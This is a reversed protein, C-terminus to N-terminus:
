PALKREEQRLTRARELGGTVLIPQSEDERSLGQTNFMQPNTVASETKALPVKKSQKSAVNASRNTKARQPQLAVEALASGAENRRLKRGPNSASTGGM